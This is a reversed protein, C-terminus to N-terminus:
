KFKEITYGEMRDIIPVDTNVEDGNNDEIVIYNQKESKQVIKTEENVPKTLVKLKGYVEKDSVKVADRNETLFNYNRENQEQVKDLSIPHELARSLPLNHFFTLAVPTLITDATFMSKIISDRTKEDASHKEYLFKPPNYLLPGSIYPSHRIDIRSQHSVASPAAYIVPVLQGRVVCITSVFFLLTIM